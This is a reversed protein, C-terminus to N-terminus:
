SWNRDLTEDSALEVPWKAPDCHYDDHWSTLARYTASCHGDDDENFIGRHGFPVVADFGPGYFLMGLACRNGTDRDCYGGTARREPHGVFHERVQRLTTCRPWHNM